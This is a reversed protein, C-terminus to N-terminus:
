RLDRGTVRVFIDALTPECSHVSLLRGERMWRAFQEASQKDDMDIIKKEKRDGQKNKVLVEMQRQSHELQLNEPTDLAVIEGRDLFAVRGCLKDVEEMNHSTLLITKGAENLRALLEHIAAGSSPDLGSTPEDLFLIDPDHLLARILLVKQKMGKSLDKVATDKEQDMGVLKLYKEIVAFDAGYLRCFFRLNQEVNLREYLNAEEPVVGLRSCLKDRQKLVDCNLIRAQGGDFELQGTLIQITTTKGAGNPGLLGFIEGAEIQFSIGRLAEKKQYRKVVNEVVIM